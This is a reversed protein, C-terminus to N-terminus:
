NSTGPTHSSETRWKSLVHEEVWKPDWWELPTVQVNGLIMSFHLHDGAALGTQGTAGVTDGRSVSQGEDVEFSSLHGYLSFLGLGHDLVVTNGYIGLSDAYIVTGGNSAEIPSQAVSALDFGLHTQRDVEKGDYVYIRHDAFRSEVKSNSLQLFPQDWLLRDASASTLEELRRNTVERFRGNIDLFTDLPTEKEAVNTNNLLIDRVVADILRDSLGIRSTRFTRSFTKHQFRSETRNGAIDEAWIHIPTDPPQDYALAFLCLYDQGQIRYGQFSRNGVQVGSRAGDELVRYLVAESGGQRLYHQGTLTAVRPPTADYPITRVNVAKRGFFWLNPQDTVEVVVDLSGEVLSVEEGFSSASVLIQDNAPGKKWPPAAGYEKSFVLTSKEAQRLFVQINRIGRGEDAVDMSIEFNRGLASPEEWQVVPKAFDWHWLLVIVVLAGILGVIWKM